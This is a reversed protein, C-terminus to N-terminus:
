AMIFFFSVIFYYAGLTFLTCFYEVQQGLRHPFFANESYYSITFKQANCISPLIMLTYVDKIYLLPAM